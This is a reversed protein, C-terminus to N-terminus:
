SAGTASCAPKLKVQFFFCWPAFRSTSTYRESWPPFEQPDLSVVQSSITQPYFMWPEGLQGLNVQILSVQCSASNVQM